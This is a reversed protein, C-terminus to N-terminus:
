VKRRGKQRESATDICSDRFSATVVSAGGLGRMAAILENQSGKQVQALSCWWGLCCCCFRTTDYHM